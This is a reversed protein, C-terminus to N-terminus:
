SNTISHEFVDKIVDLLQLLDYPKIVFHTVGCTHLDKASLKNTSTLIITGDFHFVQQITSCINAALAIRGYLCDLLICDPKSLTLQSLLGELTSFGKAEFGHMKFWKCLALVIDTDYDLIYITQM